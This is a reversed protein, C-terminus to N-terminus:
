SIQSSFLSYDRTTPVGGPCPSRTVLYGTGAWCRTSCLWSTTPRKPNRKRRRPLRNRRSNHLVLRAAAERYLSFKNNM